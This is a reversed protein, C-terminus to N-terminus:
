SHVRLCHYFSCRVLNERGDSRTEFAPIQSGAICISMAIMNIIVLICLIKMLMVEVELIFCLVDIDDHDHDNIIIIMM